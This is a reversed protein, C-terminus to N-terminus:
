NTGSDNKVNFLVNGNSHHSTHTSQKISVFTFTLIYNLILLYVIRSIGILIYIYLKRGISLKNLVILNLKPMSVQFSLLYTDYQVPLTLLRCFTTMTNIKSTENAKTRQHGILDQSLNLFSKQIKGVQKVHLTPPIVMDLCFQPYVARCNARYNEILTFFPNRFYLVETSQHNKIVRTMSANSTYQSM